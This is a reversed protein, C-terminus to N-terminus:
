AIHSLVVPLANSLSESLKSHKRQESQASNIVQLVIVEGQAIKEKNILPLSGIM